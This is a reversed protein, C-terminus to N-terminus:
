KTGSEIVKKLTAIVAPDVDRLSRIISEGNEVDVFSYPINFKKVSDQVFGEDQAAKAYGERLAAVAEPPTGKPAFGCFTLEGALNVLWNLANWLEGSPMKGHIQQYLEPFAPMEHINPNKKYNGQEDLGVLYFLGMGEGSKIFDASRTRFTTISTQTCQVENRQMAAFIGSGGRYGTVYEYPVGLVDLSMRSLIDNLDTPSNGGIKFNQAKMVDAPQKLGGPVVDTRTYSVRTDGTGGLFVMDEYRARFAESKLAQAVPIWPGWLITMGDPNAKEFVFNTAKMGGSGPMNKVVITPHGPIHKEWYQAFSRAFTDVTGGARLGVMITITKGDYFAAHSNSPMFCLVTLLCISLGILGLSKNRGKM